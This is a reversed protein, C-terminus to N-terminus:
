FNEEGWVFNFGPESYMNCKVHLVSGLAKPGCFFVGAEAPAHIKRISRFVMDWNPRGFNTPARLGTIADRDADADNIMINTADDSQIKATLYTHIEINSYRDQAEIALLLSSFWEFSGFDRCVWFFYVKKLRTKNQRQSMRYWISKLISAFPTVGIGAGVLVAVEFKFVDESASGFPGDIFIRPLIRSLRPDVDQESTNADVGIVTSERRTRREYSPQEKEDFDCGVAKALDKTFNGVCRIHVSIYDEEPASTLTFPHYQWISVVPCNIFIYQGPRMKTKEKQLQIEFVNSPHQIVKTIITRHKGRVERMLRELLYVSGGFIWYLYFVGTGDCFPPLDPKIMCFAGHFSWFLFFIIFLHHTNWFREHNARRPGELSTLAIAVLAALMVYGTWGPGTTVNLQLFGKIGLGESAAIRAFNVWHAITHLLSFFVISWATIQHFAISKHFLIVAVDFHLVLAAARAVAYSSGLLGRAKSLNDKLSYNLMGLDEGGMTLWGTTVVNALPVGDDPWSSLAYWRDFKEKMNLNRPPDGSMEGSMLM